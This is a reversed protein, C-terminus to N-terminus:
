NKRSGRPWLIIHDPHPMQVQSEYFEIKGSVLREEGVPLQKEIWDSAGRFFVIQFETQSDQVFVRHPLGKRNPILHRLVTVSVTVIDGSVAGAVSAIRRRDILAHPLTFLLDKPREVALGTMAKATKPGVGALSELGAFLPFLIEPRSDSM